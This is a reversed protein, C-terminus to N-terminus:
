LKNSHKSSRPSQQSLVEIQMAPAWQEVQIQNHKVLNNLITASLTMKDRLLAIDRTWEQVPKCHETQTSSSHLNFLHLKAVLSV